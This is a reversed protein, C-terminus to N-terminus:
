YKLESLHSPCASLISPVNRGCVPSSKQANGSSSNDSQQSQIAPISSNAKASMSTTRSNGGSSPSQCSSSIQQGQPPLASKSSSGFSIQSHGQPGRGQQQSANKHVSTNTASLSTLPAQSSPIRSPNKWQPNQSSSNGLAQTQSFISANNPFMAGISPVPLSNSTSAKSDAAGFPQQLQQHLIHHKQLQVLQQQQSTSSSNAAMPISTTATISQSPWNGISPSSVFNLTRASNDFVLTQGNGRSSKGLPAKKGDDPNTSSGGSKGESPQHNKKQTAQAATIVQYGQRTMDPFSQLIPPNQTMASFNLNSATKSGNFSAFSMAFAQSPILEVGGKLNKEQLLQHQQQQKDGHNGSGGVTTSAMLGFNPRVPVMFNPGNVSKKSHGARTDAIIPTSEGSMETDLKRSHHSQVHQKLPQQSQTMTTTLFNATSVPAGRPQRSQTQKHSSSSGSSNSANQHGPQVLSQPQQQQLQSPHLMQSPYFSGNFFPLAQSPAGGRFTPQNGVPTSISFPYGNNPLITLYPTDNAALNPYSFSVAAAMAPLASSNTTLGAIGNGPFSANNISSASKSPGTQSTMTATSVQHQNLSFIFAPGHMLNGAPAPQPPQPPLLQQKQADILASSESGRDKRTFVPINEVAQVKDQAPNLNVFPFSGQLTSGSIMNETSPMANLDKPKAGCLAASGATAPWFHNMKMFQQYLRVNCAIYHHTACRKPRPQPIFQPPQLAKSSGATGDMPVVTQFSPMYGLSPLNSLWGPLAIPSPVSGSQATTEVKSVTAKPLLKQQVNRHPKEFDIKLGRKEGVTKIKEEAIVGEKKVLSDALEEKKVVNEMKMAVDQAAPKPDLSLDVFSDQEPSSAMPPPAMLDIKFKEERQNEVKSVTSTSKELLSDHFDVDVKNCVPSKEEPLVSNEWTLVGSEEIALKSDQQKIAEEQSELGSALKSAGMDHSVESSEAYFSTKGSKTASTEMKADGEREYTVASAILGNQVVVSDADMIQTKSALVLLSDSAAANNQNLISTQAFNSNPSSKSDNADTSDLKQLDNEAKEEKKSGHSQKKLGYLVEAIEIEIDEQVSSSSCKSVKPPRTKPGNPKTKKRVSVNSSSPSAAEFSRSAAPSTSARRDESGFGGNGSVRSEHSRKVSASRAKRPVSVGIMEDAPVRFGAVQKVARPPPRLRSVGGDEIEYEDEYGIREETTEEGEEKNSGQPVRDGGGGRRSRKNRSSLERDREKKGGGRERLRATEQLEIQGDEEPSDRTARQQRRRSLGNSAAMNSPRRGERNRDVM